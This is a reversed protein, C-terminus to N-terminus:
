TQEGCVTKKKQSGIEGYLDEYFVEYLIKIATSCDQWVSAVRVRVKVKFHM